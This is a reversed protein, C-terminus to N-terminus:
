DSAVDDRTLACSVAWLAKGGNHGDLIATLATVEKFRGGFRDMWWDSCTRCLEQGTFYSGGPREVVQLTRDITM